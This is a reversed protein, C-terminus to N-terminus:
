KEANQLPLLFAALEDSRMKYATRNGIIRASIPVIDEYVELGNERLTAGTEVIDVIADSLGLIPALEVSGEIKVIDIDLGRGEFYDRAVVPYKTAITKNRYDAFFAEKKGALGALAFRCVGIGLDLIEFFKGGNEAIM